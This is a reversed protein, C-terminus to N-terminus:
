LHYHYVKKIQLGNGVGVLNDIIGGNTNLRINLTPNIDFQATTINWWKTTADVSLGQARTVGKLEFVPSLQYSVNINFYIQM